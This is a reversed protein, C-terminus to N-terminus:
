KVRSSGYRKPVFWKFFGTEHLEEISERPICRNEEATSIRGAFKPLLTRIASVVSAQDM